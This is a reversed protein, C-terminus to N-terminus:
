KKQTVCALTTKSIVTTMKPSILFADHGEAVPEKEFAAETTVALQEEGVQGHQDDAM